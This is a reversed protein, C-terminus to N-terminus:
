MAIRDRILYATMDLDGGVAIALVQRGNKGVFRELNTRQGGDKPAYAFVM